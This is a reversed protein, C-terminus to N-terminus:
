WQLIKSLNIAHYYLTINPATVGSHQKFTQLVSAQIRSKKDQWIFQSFLTQINQLTTFPILINLNQFLFTLKPLIKLKLAAIQGFLILGGEM